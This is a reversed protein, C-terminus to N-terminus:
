PLKATRIEEILQPVIEFLDGVLFYDAIEAIPAEPDKNIAVIIKSDKMGAIHQIAGSIGIAIYLTPAVTKGTQGVQWDNPAYGADVAARSAGIAAGLSDALPYIYKEFNEASGLARGGSVVISAENLQPRGAPSLDSSVFSGANAVLDKLDQSLEINIAKFETQKPIEAQPEFATARVTCVKKETLAEVEALLDGAFLPRKFKNNPLIALLDSIQAASLKEATRPAFDKGISTAAAFVSLAELQAAIKFVMDSWLWPNFHNFIPDESFFCEKIGYLSSQEAALKSNQGLVCGYLSTNTQGLHLDAHEKAAKIAARSAKSIQGTKNQELFIIISSM